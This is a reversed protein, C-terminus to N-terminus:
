KTPGNDAREIEERSVGRLGLMDKRRAPRQSSSTM